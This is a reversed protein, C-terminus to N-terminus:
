QEAEDRAEINALYDKAKQELDSGTNQKIAAKALDSAKQQEKELKDLVANFPKMLPLLYDFKRIRLRASKDGTLWKDLVSHIGYLPGYLRHSMLIGILLLVIMSIIVLPWKLYITNLLATLLEDNSPGFLDSIPSLFLFFFCILNFGIAVVVLELGFWIQQKPNVLSKRRRWIM